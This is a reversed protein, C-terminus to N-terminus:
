SDSKIYSYADSISLIKAASKTCEQIVWEFQEPTCSYNDPNEEVGHTYFILWGQHTITKDIIQKIANKDFEPNYISTARLLNLDAKNQNIGPRSSRMTEYNKALMKKVSFNVQGFPYSFHEIKNTGLLQRLSDANKHADKALGQSTGSSLMYHSYTHCAINHGNRDLDLIDEPHLYTISENHAKEKNDSNKESLGMAVYFTAKINHKDLIPVANVFASRPVDDFTISIIPQKMNKKMSKHTFSQLYRTKSECLLQKLNFM